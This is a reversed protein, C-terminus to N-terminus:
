SSLVVVSIIQLTLIAKDKKLSRKIILNLGCPNAGEM